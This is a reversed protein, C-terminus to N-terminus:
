SSVTMAWQEKARFLAQEQEDEGGGMWQQAYSGGASLASLSFDQIRSSASPLPLNNIVRDAEQMIGDLSNDEKM